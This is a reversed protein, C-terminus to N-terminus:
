QLMWQKMEDDDLFPFMDHLVPSQMKGNEDLRSMVKPTIPDELAQMVELICRQEEQFFQQLSAKVEHNATCKIYQFGFAAAVKEFDPFSIGTEPTCGM